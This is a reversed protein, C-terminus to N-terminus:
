YWRLWSALPKDKRLYGYHDPYIDIVYVGEEACEEKIIEIAEEPDKAEVMGLEGELECEADVILKLTLEPGIIESIDSSVALAACEMNQEETNIRYFYRPM